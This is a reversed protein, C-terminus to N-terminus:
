LEVGVDVWNGSACIIAEIRGPLAGLFDDTIM